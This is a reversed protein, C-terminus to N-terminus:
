LAASILVALTWLVVGVALFFARIGRGPTSGVGADEPTAVRSQGPETAMAATSAGSGGLTLVLVVGAVGLLGLAVNGTDVGALHALVVIAGVTAGGALVSYRLGLTTLLNRNM